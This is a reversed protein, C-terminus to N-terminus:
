SPVKPCFEGKGVFRVNCNKNAAPILLEYIWTDGNTGM